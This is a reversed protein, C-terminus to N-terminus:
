MEGRLTKGAFRGVISTKPDARGARRGGHGFTESSTVFISTPANEKHSNWIKLAHYRRHSGRQESLLRHAFSVSTGVNRIADYERGVSFREIVISCNSHALSAPPFSVFVASFMAVM